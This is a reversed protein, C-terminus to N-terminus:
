CANEIPNSQGYDFSFWCRNPAIWARDLSLTIRADQGSATLGMCDTLSLWPALTCGTSNVPQILGGIKGTDDVGRPAEINLIISQFGNPISPINQPHRFGIAMSNRDCSDSADNYDAYAGVDAAMPTMGTGTNVLASWNWDYNKAFPQEKYGSACNLPRSGGQYNPNSTFINVEAEWGDDPHLNSTKTTGDWFYYQSFSVSSGVRQVKIDAQEPHWNEIPVVAVRAQAENAPLDQRHAAVLADIKGADVPPASYEDGVAQVVDSSRASSRAEAEEVPMIVVAAVVQPQTGYTQEFTGLYEDVSTPGGVSYEGVIERNEFRYAVVTRGDIERIKAADALTQPVSIPVDVRTEEPQASLAALPRDLEVGTAAFAPGATVALEESAFAPTAGMAVILAVAGAGAIIRSKEV